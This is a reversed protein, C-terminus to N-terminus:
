APPASQNVNMWYATLNAFVEAFERFDVPKTVFSNAGLAYCRNIDAPERSTTLVVVPLLRTHPEERLRRLVDFGNLGPMNLDLVVVRPFFASQELSSTEQLMSLAEAGSQAVDMDAQIRVRAFARRALAVDDPNDEILLLQRLPM